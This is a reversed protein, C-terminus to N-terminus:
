LAFVNLAREDRSPYPDPGCFAEARERDHVIITRGRLHVGNDAVVQLMRSLTEATMGLRAALHRKAIPLIPAGSDPQLDVLRLLFSALRQAATRCNLDLINRVAMRWHGSMAILLNNSLASSQAMASKIAAADILILKATTLARVSVLSREACLAAAPLLLDGTSLLLVGCEHERGVHVLDVLGRWIVHLGSPCSGQEVIISGARYQFGKCGELLREASSNDLGVFIPHSRFENLDPNILTPRADSTAEDSEIVDCGNRM